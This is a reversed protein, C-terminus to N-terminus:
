FLKMLKFNEVQM